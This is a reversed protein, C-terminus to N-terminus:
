LRLARPCPWCYSIGPQGEQCSQFLNKALWGAHGCDAEKSNDLTVLQCKKPCKKMDLSPPPSPGCTVFGYLPIQKFCRLFEFQSKNKPLGWHWRKYKQKEKNTWIGKVKLVLHSQNKQVGYTGGQQSFNALNENQDRKLFQSCQQFVFGFFDPHYM